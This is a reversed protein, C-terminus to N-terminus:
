RRGDYWTVCEDRRHLTRKGTLVTKALFRIHEWPTYLHLKRASTTLPHRHLIIIRKGCRRAMKKLRQSLDIEESAFLREDFGGLERFVTAECFIFSGAVFRTVRSLLNWGEAILSAVPYRGQLKL